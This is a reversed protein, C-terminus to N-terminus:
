EDRICWIGNSLYKVGDAEFINQSRSQAYPLIFANPTYAEDDSVVLPCLSTLCSTKTYNVIIANDTSTSNPNLATVNDKYHNFDGSIIAVTNNKNDKTLAFFPAYHTPSAKYYMSLFIGNRCKYAKDYYTSGPSTSVGKTNGDAYKIYCYTNSNNSVIDFTIFTKEGIKCYIKGGDDSKTVSDFYEPVAHETLFDFLNEFSETRSDGDLLNFKEIM